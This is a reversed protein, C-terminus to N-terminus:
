SCHWWCACCVCVHATCFEWPMQPLRCWSCNEIFMQALVTPSWTVPGFMGSADIFPLWNVIRVVHALVATSPCEAENVIYTSVALYLTVVTDSLCFSKEWTCHVLLLPCSVITRSWPWWVWWTEVVSIDTVPAVYSYPSHWQFSYQLPNTASYLVSTLLDPARRTNVFMVTLWQYLLCICTCLTKFILEFM